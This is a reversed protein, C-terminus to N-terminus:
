LGVAKRLIVKAAPVNIKGDRNVDGRGIQEAVLPIRGVVAQLALGADQVSVKEATPKCGL